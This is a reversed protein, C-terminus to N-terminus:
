PHHENANIALITAAPLRTSLLVRLFTKTGLLGKENYVNIINFKFSVAIADLDAALGELLSTEAKATRSIYFLVRLRLSNDALPLLQTFAQHAVLRAALYNNNSLPAIWPEQVAIINVKLKVVLQLTLEIAHLSKNLNVQLIKINELM